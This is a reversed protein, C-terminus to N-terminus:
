GAAASALAWDAAASALAPPADGEGEAVAWLRLRGAERREVRARLRVYTGLPAEAHLEVELRRPGGRAGEGDALQAMAEELGAALV